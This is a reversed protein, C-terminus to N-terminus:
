SNRSDTKNNGDKMNTQLKIHNDILLIIFLSVMIFANLMTLFTWKNNFTIAFIYLVVILILSLWIGMISIPIINEQM